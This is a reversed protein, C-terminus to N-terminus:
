KRKDGQHHINFGHILPECEINKHDQIIKNRIYINTM